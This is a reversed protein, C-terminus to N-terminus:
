SKVWIHSLGTYHNLLHWLAAINKRLNVSSIKGTPFGRHCSIGHSRSAGGDYVDSTKQGVETM